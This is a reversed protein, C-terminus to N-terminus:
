LTGIFPIAGFRGDLYGNEISITKHIKFDNLSYMKTCGETKEVFWVEDPRLLEQQNLLATEHTTFILQGKSQSEGFFRVLKKILMPHIGNDIEDLLVTKDDNIAFYLAPILTLLRLTGTSQSLADMGSVYGNKGIQQFIFERVLRKGGEETVTLLPVDDQMKSVSVGSNNTMMDLLKGDDGEAEKMWQDFSEDKIQLSQIGLGINAFVEEMFGLLSGNSKFHEILWPIERSVEFVELKEKFWLYTNQMDENETLHLIGNAALVSFSPNDAMQREMIRKIGDAIKAKKFTITGYSREFVVHNNNKGLGSLLLAESKVGNADIEVCYLYAKGNIEFEVVISIPKSEDEVPLRFRNGLYWNKLKQNGQGAEFTTAFKKIFFMAKILNSKGAGNAGYIACSKLVPTAGDTYVHNAFSVRKPNPFMDFETDEAFSKYNGIIIRYLM